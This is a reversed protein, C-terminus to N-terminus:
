RTASEYTVAGTPPDFYARPRASPDRGFYVLEWVEEGIGQQAHLDHPPGDFWVVDGAALTREEALRVDARHPDKGDDLREWRQYLDRGRLVCVVGWSNHNHIPTAPESPFRALMLVSGDAHRGIITASASDHLGGLQGEDLDETQEALGTLHVGIAEYTARGPGGDAVLASAKEMFVEIPGNVIGSRAM